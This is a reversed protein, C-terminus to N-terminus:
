SIKELSNFSLITIRLSSTFLAVALTIIFFIGSFILGGLTYRSARKQMNGGTKPVIQTQEPAFPSAFGFCTRKGNVYIKFCFFKAYTIRMNQSLAFLMHGTEHLLPALILSCVTGVLYFVM